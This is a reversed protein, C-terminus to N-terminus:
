KEHSAEKIGHIVVVLLVGSRLSVRGDPKTLVNSIGRTSGFYLAEDDLPYELNWTTIGGAEGGVPILSVIDGPQGHLELYAIGDGGPQSHLFSIEQAGDVLRVQMGARSSAAPLLLNAVTQDWRAGLAALILVESAGREKAALLALELDTYDKRSPYRVIEAGAKELAALENEELSDFDGIVIHPEIGLDLCHRAGGDAAILLDDPRVEVPLILEGNAFIVVRMLFGGGLRLLIVQLIIM